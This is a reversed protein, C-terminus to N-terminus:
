LFFIFGELQEMHLDLDAGVLPESFRRGGNSHFEDEMVITEGGDIRDLNLELDELDVTGVGSDDLNKIHEAPCQPVVASNSIELEFSYNVDIEASAFNVSEVSEQSVPIASLDRQGILKGKSRGSGRGTREAM